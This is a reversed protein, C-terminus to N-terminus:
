RAAVAPRFKPARTSGSRVMRPAVLPGSVEFEAHCRATQAICDAHARVAQELEGIEEVTDVAAMLLAQEEAFTM